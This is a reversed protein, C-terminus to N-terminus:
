IAMGAITFELNVPSGHIDGVGVFLLIVQSRHGLFDVQLEIVLLEVTEDYVDIAYSYIWENAFLKLM